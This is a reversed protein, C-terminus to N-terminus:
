TVRQKKVKRASPSYIDLVKKRKEEPEQFIWGDCFRSFFSAEHVVGDKIDWTCCDLSEKNLPLAFPENSDYIWDRFITVAHQCCKTSDEIVGVVFMYHNIDVEWNFFKPIRKPQLWKVNEEVIQKGIALCETSGSFTHLNEQLLKAVMVLDPIATHHFASALSSFVCTNRGGQMFKVPPANECRLQPFLTMVSSRCSGPPIRVFKKNGLTKCENVFNTGFFETVLEEPLTVVCGDELMGKFCAKSHLENTVIEKKNREDQSHVYTAPVYKVRVIKRNDVPFKAVVGEETKPMLFEGHEDCDILKQALEKGYTDIVWDDSLTMEEEKEKDGLMYNVRAVFEKKKTNYRLAKVVGDTSHLWEEKALKMIKLYKENKFNNSHITKANHSSSKTKTSQFFEKELQKYKDRWKYYQRLNMEMGHVKLFNDV